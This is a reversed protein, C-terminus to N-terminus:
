PTTKLLFHAYAFSVSATVPVADANSSDFQLGSLYIPFCDVFTAQMIPRNNNGLITLVGDTYGKALETLPVNTTERSLLDQYMKHDVPFGMGVLWSHIAMYNTMKEDVIFTATLNEFNLAEGPLPVDNVSSAVTAVGLSIPPLNVQQLLFSFDPFKNFSLIFNQPGLLPKYEKPKLGQEFNKGTAM